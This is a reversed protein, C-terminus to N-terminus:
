DGDKREPDNMQARASRWRTVQSGVVEEVDGNLERLRRETYPKWAPFEGSPRRGQPNPQGVRFGRPEELALAVAYMRRVQAELIKRRGKGLQHPSLSLVQAEIIRAEAAFGERLAEMESQSM